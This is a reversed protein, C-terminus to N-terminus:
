EGAADAHPGGELAPTPNANDVSQDLQLIIILALRPEGASHERM